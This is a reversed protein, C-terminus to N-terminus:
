KFKEYFLGRWFGWNWSGRWETKVKRLNSIGSNSDLISHYKAFYYTQSPLSRSDELISTL